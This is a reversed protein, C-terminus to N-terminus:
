EQAPQLPPAETAGLADIVSPLAILPRVVDGTRIFEPAMGRRLAPSQRPLIADAPVRLHGEFGDFALAVPAV